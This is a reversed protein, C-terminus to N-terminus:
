YIMVSVIKLYVGSCPISVQSTIALLFLSILGIGRLKIYIVLMTERNFLTPTIGFGYHKKEFVKTDYLFQKRVALAKIFLVVKSKGNIMM